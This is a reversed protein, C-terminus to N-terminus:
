NAQCELGETLLSLGAAGNHDGVRRGTWVFQRGGDFPRRITEGRVIKM